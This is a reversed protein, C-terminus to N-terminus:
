AMTLNLAGSNIKFTDNNGVTKSEDLAGYILMNGASVADFIAWHTITGWSATAQPFTIDGNNDYVGAAYANWYPQTAGDNEILQRAYSGGSVETGGGAEGPAATFLALYTDPAAYAVGRFLEDGIKQELFDTMASM